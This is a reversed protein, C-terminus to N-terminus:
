GGKGSTWFDAWVTLFQGLVPWRPSHAQRTPWRRLRGIATRKTLKWQGVVWPAVDAPDHRTRCSGILGAAGMTMISLSKLQITVCPPWQLVRNYRYTSVLLQVTRNQDQLTVRCLIYLVPVWQLPPVRGYRSVQQNPTTMLAELFLFRSSKGRGWDGLIEVTWSFFTVYVKQNTSSKTCGWSSMARICMSNLSMWIAGYHIIDITCFMRNIKSRSPSLAKLLLLEWNEFFFGPSGLVKAKATQITMESKCRLGLM